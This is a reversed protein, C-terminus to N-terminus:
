FGRTRRGAGGWTTVPRGIGPRAPTFGPSNPGGSQGGSAGASSRGSSSGSGSSSGGSTGPLRRGGTAQSLSEGRALANVIDWYEAVNYENAGLNNLMTNIYDQLTGADFQRANEGLQERQFGLGADYQRADEALAARRYADDASQGMQQINLSQQQLGFGANAQRADEMLRQSELDLGSAGLEANMRIQQANLDRDIFGERQQIAAREAETGGQALMLSRRAANASGSGRINDAQGAFQSFVQGRTANLSREADAGLNYNVRGVGSLNPRRYGGGYANGFAPM